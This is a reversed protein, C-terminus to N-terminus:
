FRVRQWQVTVTDFDSGRRTTAGTSYIIKLSDRATVPISWTAGLRVNRQQDPSPVGDIRTQGGGFWTAAFALWSRRTLAYSVHGQLSAVPDQARRANGPFHHSNTTYLWVGAYVDFTWRDVPHSIGIEPKFGWRNYGLNVLSTRDYQGLPPVVTLSAGIATRRPARAFEAPTLAPAGRLGVSIRIRPDVLGRMPRRQSIGGVEGAIHGWAVPFVALVRAQRGALGFTYGFATTAISLEAKVSDVNVSSDFLIAGESGGISAILFSTGVPAPSYSRPELEQGFAPLSGLVFAAVLWKKM